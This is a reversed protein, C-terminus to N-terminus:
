SDTQLRLGVVNDVGVDNRYPALVSQLDTVPPEETRLAENGPEDARIRLATDPVCWSILRRLM